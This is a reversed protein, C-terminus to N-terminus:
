RKLWPGVSGSVTDVRLDCAIRSDERFGHVRWTCVDEKDPQEITTPEFGKAKALDIARAAEVAQTATVQMRSQLRM